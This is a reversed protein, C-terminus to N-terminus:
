IRLLNIIIKKDKKKKQIIEKYDFVNFSQDIFILCFLMKNLMKKPVLRLFNENM